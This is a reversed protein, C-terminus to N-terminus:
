KSTQDELQPDNEWLDLLRRAGLFRKKYWPSGLSSIMVQKARLAAHIFMNDGIYVGVHNPVKGRSSFFVLDGVELAEKEVKVGEKYQERSSRPLGIEFKEFLRKVLGSCDFGKEESYGSRRYRVGLWELGASALQYRLPQSSLDADQDDGADQKTVDPNDEAVPQEGDSVNDQPPQLTGLDAVKTEVSNPKQAKALVVAAKAKAASHAAPIKLEQGIQLRITKLHNAAKLADVTIRKSKAIDYLNDGKKVVYIAPEQVSKSASDAVIEEPKSNIARSSSKSYLHPILLSVLCLGCPIVRSLILRTTLSVKRCASEDATANQLHRMMELDLDASWREPM